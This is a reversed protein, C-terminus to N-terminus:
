FPGEMAPFWAASPTVGYWEWDRAVKLAVRQIREHVEQDSIGLLKQIAAIDDPLAADDWGYASHRALAAAHIARQARPMTAHNDDMLTQLLKPLHWTASLKMQLDILRFGLVEQQVASSRLQPDQKMRRRIELMPEPAYCWVLMEALDHLLAAVEVEESEIDHRLVSWDQAYRAGHFARSVVCMVGEIAEPHDKLQDELIPQDSFHRFFPSIGLMMVAHAITTIDMVQNRSRHHQLYRLVKLTMFPDHLIVGTLNRGSVNDEDERMDALEAATRRLVPIQMQDLYGVWGEITRPIIQMM